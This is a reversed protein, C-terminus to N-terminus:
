RVAAGGGAPARGPRLPAPEASYNAGPPFGTRGGILLLVPEAAAGGIALVALNHSMSGRVAALETPARFTAGGDTSRSLVTAFLKPDGRRRPM